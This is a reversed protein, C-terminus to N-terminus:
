GDVYDTFLIEPSICIRAGNQQTARIHFYRHECDDGRHWSLPQGVAKATNEILLPIACNQIIEVNKSCGM